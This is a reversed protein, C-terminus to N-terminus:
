SLPMPTGDGVAMQRLVSRSSQSGVVSRRDPFRGDADLRAIFVDMRGIEAIMVPQVDMIERLLGEMHLTERGGECCAADVVGREGMMPRYSGIEAIGKVAAYREICIGVTRQAHRSEGVEIVIGAVLETIRIQHRLFCPRCREARCILLRKVLGTRESEIGFQVMTPSAIDDIPDIDGRIGLAGIVRLVLLPHVCKADLTGHLVPKVFPQTVDLEGISEGVEVDVQLLSVRTIEIVEAMFDDQLDLVADIGAEASRPRQTITVAYPLEIIGITRHVIKLRDEEQVSLDVVVDRMPAKGDGAGVDGVAMIVVITANKLGAGPCFEGDSIM